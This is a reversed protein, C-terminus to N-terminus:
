VCRSTYLLCTGSKLSMLNDKSWPFDVSFQRPSNDNLSSSTSTHQVSNASKASSATSSASNFNYSGSKSTNPNSLNGVKTPLNLDSFDTHGRYRALENKLMDVQAKLFDAETTAKINEDELSKVKDELDKMKREKRERYASDRICM